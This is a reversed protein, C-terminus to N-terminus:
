EYTPAKRAEYFLWLFTVFSIALYWKGFTTNWFAYALFCIAYIVLLTITIRALEDLFGNNRPVICIYMSKM